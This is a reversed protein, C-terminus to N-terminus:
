MCTLIGVSNASIKELATKIWKLIKKNEFHDEFHLPNKVGFFLSKFLFTEHM